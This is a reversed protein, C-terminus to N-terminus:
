TEPSAPMSHTPTKTSPTTSTATSNNQSGPVRMMPTTPTTQMSTASTIPMVSM